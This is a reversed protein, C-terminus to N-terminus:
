KKGNENKEIWIDSIDAVEKSIEVNEKINELEPIKKIMYKKYELYCDECVIMEQNTKPNKIKLYNMSKKANMNYCDECVIIEQLTEPDEVEMYNETDNDCGAMQCKM